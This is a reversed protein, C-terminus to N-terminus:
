AFYRILDISRSEIVFILREVRKCPEFLATDYAFHFAYFKVQLHSHNANIIFENILKFSGSQIFRVSGLWVLGARSFGADVTLAGNRKCLRSIKCPCWSISISCWPMTYRNRQVDIPFSIRVLYSRSKKEFIGSTSQMITKKNNCKNNNCRIVENERMRKINKFCWGTMALWHWKHPSVICQLALMTRASNSSCDRVMVVLELWPLNSCRLCIGARLAIFIVRCVCSTREGIPAFWGDVIECKGCGAKRMSRYSSWSLALAKDQCAMAGGCVMWASEILRLSHCRIHFIIGALM